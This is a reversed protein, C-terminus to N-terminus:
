LVDEPLDEAFAWTIGNLIGPKIIILNGNSTLKSKKIPAFEIEIEEDLLANIEELLQAETFGDNYIGMSGDKPQVKFYRKFLKDKQREFTDMVDNFAEIIKAIRFSPVLDLEMESLMSFNMKNESLRRITAKHKQKM